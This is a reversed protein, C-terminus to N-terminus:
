KMCFGCGFYVNYQRVQQFAAKAPLDFAAHTVAIRFVQHRFVFGDLQLQQLEEAIPKFFELMNPKVDNYYFGVSLVNELRYRLQPPLFNCIIQLPWLSKKSSKKLSVGDTNIMLTLINNKMLLLNKVVEGSHVDEISDTGYIDIESQFKM